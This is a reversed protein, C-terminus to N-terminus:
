RPCIRKTYCIELVAPSEDKSRNNAAVKPNHAPFFPVVM